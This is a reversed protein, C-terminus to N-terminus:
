QLLRQIADADQNNALLYDEARGIDLWFGEHRM